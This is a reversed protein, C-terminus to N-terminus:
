QKVVKISKTINEATINIFYIGANGKLQFDIKSENYTKLGNIVKGLVDYQTLAIESYAKGLDITIFEKAPVPYVTVEKLASFDEIKLVGGEYVRVVGAFNGHLKSVSSAAVVTEGNASIAAELGIFEFDQLGNIAVDVQRWTNSVLRFVRVQGKNDGGGQSDPSGIVLTNGDASIGLSTGASEGNTAGFISEGKKEWSTGNWDYIRIEGTFNSLSISSGVVRNGDESFDLCKGFFDNEALGNIDQGMQTWATGNWEFIRINGAANGATDNQHAGMAIRNGDGSLKISYGLYDQAAQGNIDAGLQQWTSGSLEFIQVKGIQSGSSGSFPASVAVRNGNSSISVSFGFQNDSPNIIPGGVAVWNTGNWELIDARRTVTSGFIVRTGDPTLAVDYGIQDSQAGGNISEGVQVWDNGDFSFIQVQGNNFGNTDANPSGIAMITGDASLSVSHGSGFAEAGFIDNGIQEWQANANLAFLLVIALLITKFKLTNKKM